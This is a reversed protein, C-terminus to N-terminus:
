RPVPAPLRPRVGLPYTSARGGGVVRGGPVPRALLPPRHPALLRHLRLHLASASPKRGGAAAATKRGSLRVLADAARAHLDRRQHFLLSHYAADRVLQHTFRFSLWLKAEAGATASQTQAEEEKVINEQQAAEMLELLVATDLTLPHTSAVLFLAFHRGIVSAVRMLMRCQPGLRDLLSTLLAELSTPLPAEALLEDVLSALGTLPEVRIYGGELMFQCLHEIFLPIGDSRAFITALLPPTLAQCHLYSLALAAAADQPLGSLAFHRCRRQQRIERYLSFPTQKLTPSSPPSGGDPSLLPRCTLLVAVSPLRECVDKLLVWSQLDLWHGDEVVVLSRPHREFHALLLARMVRLTLGTRDVSDVDGSADYPNPFCDPLLPYLLSVYPREEPPLLSQLALFLSAPPSTPSSPPPDHSEQYLTDHHHQVAAQLISTIAFFSTNQEM